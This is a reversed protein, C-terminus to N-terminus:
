HISSVDSIGFKNNKKRENFVTMSKGNDKMTTNHQYTINSHNATNLIATHNTSNNVM